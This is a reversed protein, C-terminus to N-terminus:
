TLLSIFVWTFRHSRFLSHGYGSCDGNKAQSCVFLSFGFSALGFHNSAHSSPFSLRGGCGVIGRVFAMTYDDYCPRVRGFLPKLIHASGYDTITICVLTCCIFKLANLKKQRSLWYLMYLYLPIWTYPNRILLMTGDLWTATLHTQVFVFAKKDIHTLWEIVQM